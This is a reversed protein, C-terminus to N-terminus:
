YTVCVRSLRIGLAGCVANAIKERVAPNAAGACVVAVGRVQPLVTGTELAEKGSGALVVSSDQSSARVSDGTSSSSSREEAYVRQSSTDLTVMVTCSGAGDIRSILETLRQEIDRETQACDEAAPSPSFRRRFPEPPLVAAVRPYRPSSASAATAAQRRAPSLLAAEQSSRRSPPVSM